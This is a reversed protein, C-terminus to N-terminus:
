RKTNHNHYSCHQTDKGTLRQNGREVGGDRLTESNKLCGPWGSPEQADANLAHLCTLGAQVVLLTGVMRNVPLSEARRQILWPEVEFSTDWLKYFFSCTNSLGTELLTAILFAALKVVAQPNTLFFVFYRILLFKFIM